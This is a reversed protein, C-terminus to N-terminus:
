PLERTMSEAIAQPDIKYTGNRIAQQLATVCARQIDPPSEKQLSLAQTVKPSSSSNAEDGGQSGAGRSPAMTKDQEIGIPLIPSNMRM